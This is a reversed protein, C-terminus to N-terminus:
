HIKEPELKDVIQCALRYTERDDRDREIAEYREDAQELIAKLDPNM